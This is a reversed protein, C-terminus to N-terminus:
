CGLSLIKSSHQPLKVTCRVKGGRPGGGRRGGATRRRDEPDPQGSISGLSLNPDLAYVAGRLANVVMSLLEDAATTADVQWVCCRHM